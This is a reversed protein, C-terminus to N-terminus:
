EDGIREVVKATDFSLRGRIDMLAAFPAEYSWAADALTENYLSIAYYNADGKFPCHTATDTRNLYSMDVDERPLYQRPPYGTERLEIASRTDAILTDGAWVRVRRYHLHLSIRDTPDHIM